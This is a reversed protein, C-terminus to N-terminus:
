SGIIEAVPWYQPIDFVISDINNQYRSQSIVISCTDNMLWVHLDCSTSAFWIWFYNVYFFLLNFIQKVNNYFPRFNKM